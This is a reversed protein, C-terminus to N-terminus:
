PTPVDASQAAPGSAPATVPDAAPDPHPAPQPDSQPDSQPLAGPAPDAAPGAACTAAAGGASVAAIAAILQASRFPKGAHGAFGAALYEHLQHPMVNATVALAPPPAVGAAAAHGAIRALATVGDMVPMSIDLLLVDFRGPAWADVAQAGDAVLTLAAGTPRLMAALVQRNTANDDAALLRLGGLVGNG